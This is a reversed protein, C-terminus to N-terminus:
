LLESLIDRCIADTAYHDIAGAKWAPIMTLEFRVQHELTQPLGKFTYIVQGEGHPHPTTPPVPSKWDEPAPELGTM